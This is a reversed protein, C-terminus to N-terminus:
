CGTRLTGVEAWVTALANTAERHESVALQHAAEFAALAARAAAFEAATSKLKTKAKQLAITEAHTQTIPAVPDVLVCGPRECSGASAGPYCDPMPRVGADGLRKHLPQRRRRGAARPCVDTGGDGENNGECGDALCTGSAGFTAELPNQYGLGEKRRWVFAKSWIGAKGGGALYTGPAGFTAAIDEAAACLVTWDALDEGLGSDCADSTHVPQAGELRM